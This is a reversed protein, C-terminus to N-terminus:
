GATASVTPPGGLDVWTREGRGSWPVCGPRQSVLGPSGELFEAAVPAEMLLGSTGPVLAGWFYSESLAQSFNTYLRRLEKQVQHIWQPIHTNQVLGWCKGLVLGPVWLLLSSPWSGKVTRRAQRTQIGWYGRWKNEACSKLWFASFRHISPDSTNETNSKNGKQM